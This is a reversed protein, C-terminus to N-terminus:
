RSANPAAITIGADELARRVARLIALAGATDGHLCLTDARIAIRSGDIAIATRDRAISLAQRAATEPRDLMAGPHSRPVLSGDAQYARDAFAEAAVPLGAHRGAELLSSGALGVLTLAPSIGRVAEAIAFSLDFDIAAQNYLAGHPKVHVVSVQAAAAVDLLAAIQDAVITRVTDLPLSLARRGFSDRDIYGPHAGVSVHHRRATEVSRRMTDPNGAHGGCAVNVSALYPILALEAEVAAETAGEGIDANLDIRM